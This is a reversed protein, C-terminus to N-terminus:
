RQKGDTKHTMDAYHIRTKKHTSDRPALSTIVCVFLWVNLKPFHAAAFLVCKEFHLNDPFIPPLVSVHVCEM